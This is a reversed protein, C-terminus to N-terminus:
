RLIGIRTSWRCNANADQPTKKNGYEGVVVFSTDDSPDVQAGAWRGVAKGTALSCKAGFNGKKLLAMKSAKGAGSAIDTYAASLFRRSGAFHFPVAVRGDANVAIGAKFAHKNKGVGFTTQRTLTTARAGEEVLIEVIGLCSENPAPGQQCSVAHVGYLRGDRFAAQTITAEGTSLEGGGKHAADPPHEFDEGPIRTSTIRVKPRPAGRRNIIRWVIYNSMTGSRWQTSLMFLGGPGSGDLNVTPQVDFAVVGEDDDKAKFRSSSVAPCSAANDVLGAKDIVWFYVNNFGGAFKWTNATVALLEDDFGLGFGDPAYSNQVESDIKYTCWDGAGFGDPSASRSVLLYFHSEKSTVGWTPALLFFRGSQPDYTLRSGGTVPEGVADKQLGFLDFLNVERRHDNGPRDVLLFGYTTTHVMHTPSAAVQPSPTHASWLGGDTARTTFTTADHGEFSSSISLKDVGPRDILSLTDAVPADPSWRARRKARALGVPDLTLVPMSEGGGIAASPRQRANAAPTTPLQLPELTEEAEALMVMAERQGGPAPAAYPAMASGCILTLATVALSVRIRM